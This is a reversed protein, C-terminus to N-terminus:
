DSGVLRVWCPNKKCVLTMLEVHIEAAFSFLSDDKLKNGECNTLIIDIAQEKQQWFLEQAAIHEGFAHIKPHIKDEAWTQGNTKHWSKPKVSSHRGIRRRLQSNLHLEQRWFEVQKRKFWM